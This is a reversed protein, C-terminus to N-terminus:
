QAAEPKPAVTYAVTRAADKLYAAAVRQVDAATVRDIDELGTFLRKWSGYNVHFFALQEALGPNSDLQRILSARLKTKIRAVSADDPKERRLRDLIAYIAKENEEITRGPAPVSYFTFLNPYRGSPMVPFAGAALSIKRDRVLDKYLLGTRGSALIGSLVDLAADDAHKQDPRKYGMFLMPQSASEIAVRKEGQQPPEVTVVSPPLPGAPLPAFYKGALQRVHAPAVDGAIAVTINGPVYYRRFFTEADSARLASIDSAWGIQTRYPHAAFATALLMEQLQGQPSSEVRMRREELVVDREKYFERFAPRRLWASQLLFWLEVRNAPLSYHYVTSDAGTGANFGVGGNEEIVQVYLNPEVLAGAADIAAEIAKEMREIERPDPAPKSREAAIQDQLREIGSLAKQELAWNRGGITPTGKGIMHEFMHALGTKGRPDDAAGANVYAHFSVVPAEHRELVIFHLGNALTFETVRRAFEDLSQAAAALVGLSVALACAKLGVRM